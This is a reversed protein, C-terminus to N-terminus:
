NLSFPLNKPRGGAKREARQRLGRVIEELLEAERALRHDVADIELLEQQVAPSVLLTSAVLWSFAVPDPHTPPAESIQGGLARVAEIYAAYGREVRAMPERVRAMDPPPSDLMEVDGQLYPKDHNLSVVRFRQQGQTQIFIRQDPLPAAKTIRTLTGVLHPEAAGGVEAGERILVVGFCGEALGIDALLTKYRPEFIQLPLWMEPYLVTGLPFLPIRRIDGM